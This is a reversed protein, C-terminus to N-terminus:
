QTSRLRFNDVSSSEVVDKKSLSLMACGIASIPTSVRYMVEVSEVCVEGVAIVFVKV